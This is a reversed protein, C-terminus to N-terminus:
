PLACMASHIGTVLANAGPLDGTGHYENSTYVVSKHGDESVMWRSNYGLTDGGMGWVWKTTGSCNLPYHVVGLGFRNGTTQGSPDIPVTTELETMQAAPLLRGQILSQTFTMLDQLTSVMAGATWLMSPAQVSVEVTGLNFGAVVTFYYGHIYNGYLNPDTTPFSTGTLNLATIIRNKIELGPDNGTIKQIVMGLLIYGTNIYRYPAPPDATTPTNEGPQVTGPHTLLASNVLDQPAMVRTANAGTVDPYGFAYDPLGSTQNALERLTVKSGDYGTSAPIANPLWKAVTDDMSLKGEAELQLVVTITFQKTISGIRFQATPDIPAHTGLNGTGAITYQGSVGDTVLAAVGPYGASLGQQEAGQMIQAAGAVDGHAATTAGPILAMAVAALTM